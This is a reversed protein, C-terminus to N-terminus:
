LDTVGEGTRSKRPPMAPRASLPMIIVVPVNVTSALFSALRSPAAGISSTAPSSQGNKLTVEQESEPIQLLEIARDIVESTTGSGGSDKLIQLIPKFFRIFEPGKSKM